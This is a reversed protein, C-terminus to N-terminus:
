WCQYRRYLRFLPARATRLIRVGQISIALILLSLQLLTSLQHCRPTNETEWLSESLLIPHCKGEGIYHSHMRAHEIASTPQSRLTVAPFLQRSVDRDDGALPICIHPAKQAVEV